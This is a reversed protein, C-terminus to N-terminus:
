ELRGERYASVYEMCFEDKGMVMLATKLSGYLMKDTPDMIASDLGRVIAAVLFTRNVLKRNPLGYSINTLGCTTHVGPFQKMILEIANLTALASETNTGIPYVLPDIYLDDLLVGSATVKEVLQGALKVKDETTEAISDETQCLGIVKCKYEVILPLIRELRAPELTISNIMPVGTKVLPLVSKIVAPDPSDICIPCDTPEQVVEILWRLHKAEEGIFSGANVDLYDAGADVQAKAESQIFGVDRSSIANKISKRSSNIREGIILM